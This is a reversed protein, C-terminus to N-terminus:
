SFIFWKKLFLVQLVGVALVLFPSIDEADKEKTKFKLLHVNKTPTDCQSCIEPLKVKDYLFVPVLPGYKGEIQFSKECYVYLKSNLHVLNEGCHPCSPVYNQNTTNRSM